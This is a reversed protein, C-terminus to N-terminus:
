LRFGPTWLSVHSGGDRWELVATRKATKADQSQGQGGDRCLVSLVSRGFREFAGIEGPQAGGEGEGVEGDDDCLQEPTAVCGCVVAGEARVREGYREARDAHEDGQDDGDDAGTPGETLLAGDEVALSM